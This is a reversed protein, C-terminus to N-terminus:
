VPEQWAVRICGGALDVELLFPDAFPVLTQRSGDSIVLVDHAGTEMLAEVTGLPTGDANSVALGILDQWYCEEASDLVPLARRPVAIEAGALAQAAERDDVGALRAVFGDGHRRLAAVDVQRWTGAQQLLWPRYRAINDPPQTSSSVRVQGAVGYAGAVRGVVVIDSGIDAM